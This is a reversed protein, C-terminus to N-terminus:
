PTGVKVTDEPSWPTASFEVAESYELGQYVHEIGPELRVLVGPELTHQSATGDVRDRTNLQIRGRLLYFYETKAPHYHGGRRVGEAFTLFGLFRIEPCAPHLLTFEGQPLMLRKAGPEANGTTHVPLRLVEVRSM